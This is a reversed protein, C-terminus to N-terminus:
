FISTNKEIKIWNNLFTKQFLRLDSKQNIITRNTKSNTARTASKQMLNHQEYM